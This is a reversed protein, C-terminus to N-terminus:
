VLLQLQPDTAALRKARFARQMEPITAARYVGETNESGVLVAADISLLETIRPRVTLIDIGCRIALQRTTCPGHIQLAHYVEGRVKSIRDQIDAFTANRYDIPKM